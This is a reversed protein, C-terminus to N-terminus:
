TSITYPDHTRRKLTINQDRVNRTQRINYMNQNFLWSCQDTYKTKKKDNNM